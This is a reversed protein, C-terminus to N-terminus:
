FCVSDSFKQRQSLGPDFTAQFSCHKFGLWEVVTIGEQLLHCLKHWIQHLSSRLDGLSVNQIDGYMKLCDINISLTRLFLVVGLVRQKYSSCAEDLNLHCLYYHHTQVPDPWNKVARILNPRGNKTQTQNQFIEGLFGLYKLQKGM